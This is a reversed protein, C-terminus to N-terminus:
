ACKLPPCEPYPDEFPPAPWPQDETDAAPFDYGATLLFLDPFPAPYLELNPDRGPDPPLDLDPDWGPEAPM